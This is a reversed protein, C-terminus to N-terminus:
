QSFRSIAYREPLQSELAELRAYAEESEADVATAMAVGMATKICIKAAEAALIESGEGEHYITSSIGLENITIDGDIEGSHFAYFVDCTIGDETERVIVMKTAFPTNIRIEM